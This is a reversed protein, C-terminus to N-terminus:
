EDPSNKLGSRWDEQRDHRFKVKKKAGQTNSRAKAHFVDSTERLPAFCDVKKARREIRRERRTYHAM